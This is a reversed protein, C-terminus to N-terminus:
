SLPPLLARDRGYVDPHFTVGGKAPAATLYTIYVPTPQPLDVHRDLARGTNKRNPGLLWAVLEPARELRVCGASVLRTPSRFVQKEPTDHLYIGLENPLMFKVAGMMNDGGPRQRVRLETRGNAVARWDIRRPDLPVAHDDWSSLAQMGRSEFYGPGLQVVKPALSDRVLDVPVNWYPDLVMYRMLGAMMPTQEDRTGVAVKMAGRVQGREYLWLQGAAVNVLIFRPAHLPPLARARELNALILREYHTAGANLAAITSADARGTAPLGHATQFRAIARQLADDVLDDSGGRAALGLRTRLLRVREGRAGPGLLAGTPIHMQPLHSWQAQYAALGERLSRYVPNVERLSALYQELSAARSAQKLAGATTSPLALAPDMFALRAAPVTHGISRVYDGLALSLAIEARALAPPRGSSRGLTATLRPRSAPQWEIVTSAFEAAERRISAKRWALPNDSTEIWLPRYDRAKYFARVDAPADARALEIAVAARVAASTPAFLGPVTGVALLLLLVLAVAAALM